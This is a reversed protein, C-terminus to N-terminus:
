PTMGKKPTPKALFKDMTELLQAPDFPKTVFGDAGCEWSHLEHLHQELSTFIIVPISKTKEHTKLNQCVKWGDMRPILIDLLVLDPPNMQARQIGDEGNAAEAVQHGAKELRFKLMERSESDDDIILIKAM